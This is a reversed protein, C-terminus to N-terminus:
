EGVAKAGFRRVMGRRPRAAAGTNAPARTPAPRKGTSENSSVALKPKKPRKIPPLEGTARKANNAAITEARKRQKTAKRDAKLEAVRTEAEAVGAAASAEGLAEAAKERLAVESSDSYERVKRKQDRSYMGPDRDRASEMKPRLFRYSGDVDAYIGRNLPDLFCKVQRGPLLDEGDVDHGFVVTKGGARHDIGAATVTLIAPQLMAIADVGPLTKEPDLKLQFAADPTRPNTTLMRHERQHYKEIERGLAATLGDVDLLDQVRVAIKRTERGKGGAARTRTRSQSEQVRDTPLYKEDYGPINRCLDKITGVLREILGRRHPEESPLDTASTSPAPACGAEEAEIELETSRKKLLERLGHHTPHNDMRLVRPLYGGYARCAPPALEPLAIALFTGVIDEDRYGVTADYKYPPVVTFSPIARAHNDAAIIGWPKVSVLKRSTPHVAKIFVPLGLEDMTVVDFPRETYITAKPMGDALAAKAGHQAASLEAIEYENWFEEIQHLTLKPGRLREQKIFAKADEFLRPASAWM